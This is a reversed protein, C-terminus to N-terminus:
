FYIGRKVFKLGKKIKISKEKNLILILAEKKENPLKMIIM